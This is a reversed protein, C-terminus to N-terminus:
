AAAQEIWRSELFGEPENKGFRVSNSRGHDLEGTGGLLVSDM